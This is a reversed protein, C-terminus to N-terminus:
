DAELIWRLAAEYDTYANVSFGRNHSCTEFFGAHDFNLGPLVVLAVKRCFTTGHLCLEAALQYVDIISLRSQTDRFDILLEHDDRPHGAKAIEVFLERGTTINILGNVTVELFEKATKIRFKTAM